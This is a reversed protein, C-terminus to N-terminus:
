RKKILALEPAFTLTDIDKGYLLETPFGTVQLGPTIYRRQRNIDDLLWKIFTMQNPWGEELYGTADACLLDEITYWGGSKLHPWLAKFTTIIGSSRHSGDDIIFDWHSGFKEVFLKWFDPSSQDGQLFQFREHQFGCPNCDVGYIHANPFYELWIRISLAHEVGVELLKIPMERLPSFIADYHRVYDHHLSDKDGTPSISLAIDDLTM